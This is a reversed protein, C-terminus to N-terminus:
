TEIYSSASTGVMPHSDARVRERWPRLARRRWTYATFLCTITMALIAERLKEIASAPESSRTSAGGGGSVACDLSLFLCNRRATCFLM